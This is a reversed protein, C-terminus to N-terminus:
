RRSRVTILLLNVGGSLFVGVAFIDVFLWAPNWPQREGTPRGALFLLGLVGALVIALTYAAMTQRRWGPPCNFIATVPIVLLGFMAATLWPHPWGPISATALGLLTGALCLGVCNSATVQAPTLALRGFHDLRLLLNFLPDAIWALIGFMVYGILVPWIFRKYPSGEEVAYLLVLYAVASGLIMLWQWPKSLGAMWLIFRLLLRYVLYRTKLCEVIGHRAMAFEADLRLAERFHELARASDGKQLYAWGQNAHTVANLPDRALATEIAARAEAARGLKNLALARLNICTINEPDVRLGQEAAELAEHWRGEDCCISALQALYNTHKPDLRIAELIALRAEEFRERDQLISALAYHAFPL